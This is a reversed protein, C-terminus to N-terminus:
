EQKWKMVVKFNAELASSVIIVDAEASIKLGFEISLEHPHQALSALKNIIVETVPILPSLAEQFSQTAKKVIYGTRSVEVEGRTAEPIETEIWVSKNDELPFEIVQKM